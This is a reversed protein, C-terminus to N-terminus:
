ASDPVKTLNVITRNNQQVNKFIKDFKTHLKKFVNVRKELDTVQKNQTKADLDLNNNANEDYAEFGERNPTYSPSTLKDFCISLFHLVFISLFLLILTNRLMPKKGVFLKRYEIAFRNFLKDIRITM